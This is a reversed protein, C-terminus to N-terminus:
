DRPVELESQEFGHTALIVIKKGSLRMSIRWSKPIGQALRHSGSVTGSCLFEAAHIARCSSLVVLRFTAM